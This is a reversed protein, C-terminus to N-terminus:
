GPQATTATKIVTNLKTIVESVHLNAGEQLSRLLGPQIPIQLETRIAEVLTPLLTTADMYVQLSDKKLILAKLELDAKKASLKKLMSNVRELTMDSNRQLLARRGEDTSGSLTFQKYSEVVIDFDKQANNVANEYILLDNRQSVLPARKASLDMVVRLLYINFDSQAKITPESGVIQIKSLADSKAVYDKMLDETAIHLLGFNGLSRLSAGIAEVAQLYIDRKVTFEREAKKLVRDHELQKVQLRSNNWNSASVGILTFISGCIVGWFTAPVEKCASIVMQVAQLLVHSEAGM